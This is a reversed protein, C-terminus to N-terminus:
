RPLHYVWLNRRREVVALRQGDPSLAMHSIGLPGEHINLLQQGTAVNWAKVTGDFAGSLLTRCDPHFALSTIKGLHGQLEAHPRLTALNWLKLERGEDCTALWRQDGSVALGGLSEAHADRVVRRLDGHLDVVHVDRQVGFILWRGDSTFRPRTGSAAPFERLLRGSESDLLLLRKPLGDQEHQSVVVALMDGAPSCRVDHLSSNRDSEFLLRVPGGPSHWRELVCPQPLNRATAQLSTSGALTFWGGERPVTVQEWTRNGPLQRFTAAHGPRLSVTALGVHAAVLLQERAQDFAVAHIRLETEPLRALESLRARDLVREATSTNMNLRQVIGERGVLLASDGAPECVASYIRSDQVKWVGLPRDLVPSSSDGPVVWLRATGLNDVSLVGDGAPTFDVSRIGDPHPQQLIQSGDHLAFLRLKTTQGGLEGVALLQSDPSFAVSSLKGHAQDWRMRLVGDQIARVVVTRDDGASAWWQGDPSVAIAEVRGAHDAYTARTRGDTGVDSWVHVRKDAGCTILSKGDPTFQVGFALGEHAAFQGAPQGDAVSWLRISGDDGASALTQGDPSYALSNVEGQGSPISLRVQGTARNHVRIVADQGATAFQRGDPALRVCYLPPNHTAITEVAPHVERHLFYWELGRLDAQGSSPVHQALIQRAGSPDGSRWCHAALRMDSAYRLRRAKLESALARDRMAVAHLHALRLRGNWRQLAIAHWTMGAVALVLVLIVSGMIALPLPNRVCWRGLRAAPGLTRAQTPEGRLFRHLDLALDGASAYRRAPNKELCMACIASIDRPAGAAVRHLPPAERSVVLQLTEATNAGCIPLEGAALQFLLVGLAYVDSAPGAREGLVQEPSVFPASGVLMGSSTIRQGEDVLIATGFDTLKPRFPLSGCTDRDDLIVNAPKIDRHIVGQQHAHEAAEALALVIRAAQRADGVRSQEELWQQLTRGPCYESVLFCVGQHEGAQHVQVIHPHHLGAAATGERRFRERADPSVGALHPIKVAVERDLNADDALYVVGFGGTGLIQKLTFRGFRLPLAADAAFPRWDPCDDGSGTTAGPEGDRCSHEGRLADRRSAELFQRVFEADLDCALADLTRCCDECRSVHREVRVLAPEPLERQLYSRLEDPSCCAM